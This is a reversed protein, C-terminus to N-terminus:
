QELPAKTENEQEELKKFHYFIYDEREYPDADEWNGGNREKYDKEALIRAKEWLKKICSM